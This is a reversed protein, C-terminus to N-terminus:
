NQPICVLQGQIDTCLGDVVRRATEFSCLSGTFADECAKISEEPSGTQRQRSEIQSPELAQGEKGLPICVLRGRRSECTGSLTSIGDSGTVECTNGEVQMDCARIAEDVAEQRKTMGEDFFQGYAISGMSWFLIIAALCFMKLM